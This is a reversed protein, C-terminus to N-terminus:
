VHIAAMSMSLRLMDSSVFLVESLVCVDFVGRLEISNVNWWALEDEEDDENDDNGLSGIVLEFEDDLLDDVKFTMLNM